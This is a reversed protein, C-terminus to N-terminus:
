IGGSTGITLRQDESMWEIQDVTDSSITLSIAADEFIQEGVISRGASDRQGTQQGLPETASFNFFDATKSLFITQSEEATGAFVLRQQYLQM